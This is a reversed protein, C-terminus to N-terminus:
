KPYLFVLYDWVPEEDDNEPPFQLLQRKVIFEQGPRLSLYEPASRDRREIEEWSVNWLEGPNWLHEVKTTHIGMYTGFQVVIMNPYVVMGDSAPPTTKVVSENVDLETGSFSYTAFEDISAAIADAVEQPGETCPHYAFTRYGVAGMERRVVTFNTGSEIEWWKVLSDALDLQGQSVSHMDGPNWVHISTTLESTARRAGQKVRILTPSVTITYRKGEFFEQLEFRGTRPSDTFSLTVQFNGNVSSVDDISSAIRDALFQFEADKLDESMMLFLGTFSSLIIVTAVTLALKSSLWELM